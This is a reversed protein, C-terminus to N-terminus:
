FYPGEEVMLQLTPKNKSLAEVVQKSTNTRYLYVEKLNPVKLLDIASEIM